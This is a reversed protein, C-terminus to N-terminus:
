IINKHLIHDFNRLPVIGSSCSTSHGADPLEVLKAYTENRLKTLQKELISWDIIESNEQEFVKIVQEDNCLSLDKSKGTDNNKIHLNDKTITDNYNFRVFQEDSTLATTKIDKIAKPKEPCYSLMGNKISFGPKLKQGCHFQEKVEKKKEVKKGLTTNVPDVANITSLMALKNM